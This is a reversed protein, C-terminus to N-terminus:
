DLKTHVNSSIISYDSCFSFSFHWCWRDMKVSQAACSSEWSIVSAASPLYLHFLKEKGQGTSHAAAMHARLLVPELGPVSRHTINQWIEM